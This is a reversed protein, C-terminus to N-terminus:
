HCSWYFFSCFNGCPLYVNMMCVCVCVCESATVDTAVICSLPRSVACRPRCLSVALCVLLWGNNGAIAIEVLVNQQLVVYGHCNNLGLIMMLPNIPVCRSGLSANQIQPSTLLLYVSYYYRLLQRCTDHQLGGPKDPADPVCLRMSLQYQLLNIFHQFFYCLIAGQM